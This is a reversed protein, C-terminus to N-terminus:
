RWTQREGIQRGGTLKSRTFGLTSADDILVSRGTAGFYGRHSWAGGDAGACREGDRGFGLTRARNRELGIVAAERPDCDGNSQWAWTAGQTQARTRLLRYHESPVRRKIVNEIGCAAVKVDLVVAASGEHRAARGDNRAAVHGDRYAATITRM